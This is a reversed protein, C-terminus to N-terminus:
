APRRLVVVPNAAGQPMVLRHSMIIQAARTEDSSAPEDSTTGDEHLHIRRDGDIAYGGLAYRRKDATRESWDTVRFLALPSGIRFAALYETSASINWHGRTSGWLTRLNTEGLRVGMHDRQFPKDQAGDSDVAGLRIGAIVGPVTGRLLERYQLHTAEDQPDSDLIDAIPQDDPTNELIATLMETPDLGRQHARQVFAAIVDGNTNFKYSPM